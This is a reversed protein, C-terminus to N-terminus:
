TCIETRMRCNGLEAESDFALKKGLACIQVIFDETYGFQGQEGDLHHLRTGNDKSLETM